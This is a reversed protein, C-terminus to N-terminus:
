LQVATVKNASLDVLYAKWEFEGGECNFVVVGWDVTGSCQRGGYKTGAAQLAPTTMALWGRGGVHTFQHVHSRIIVQAKPQEGREAWLVNWLRDRAIPTARGHPISSNGVKHKMDFTVGGFTFFPHDKITAGLNMALVDEYDADWGVHYPTGRSFIRRPEGRFKVVRISAEANAIQNPWSADPLLETGGSRDGRGDFADANNAYADVPGIKELIDMRKHWLERQVRGWKAYVGTSPMWWDPSNLGARHHAHMDAEVLLLGM